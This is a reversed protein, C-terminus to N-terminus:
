KQPVFIQKLQDILVGNGGVSISNIKDAIKEVYEMEKLKFLVPNEEMLKATNLLSRTSATEERRMIINAQAKKEAVLVQNMIEKVDGPFIIDRIGFGNVEVGLAEANGRVAQLIHPALTQKKELM